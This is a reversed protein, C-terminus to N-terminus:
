HGAKAIHEPSSPERVRIARLGVRGDRRTDAIITPLVDPFWEVAEDM